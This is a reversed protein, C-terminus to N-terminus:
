TKIYALYEEKQEILIKKFYKCLRNFDDRLFGCQTLVDDDNEFSFMLLVTNRYNSISKFTEKFFNVLDM